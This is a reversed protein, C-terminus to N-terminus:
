GSFPYPGSRGRSGSTSATTRPTPSSFVARTSLAPDLDMIRGVEAASTVDGDLRQLVQVAVVSAVPVGMVEELHVEDVRDGSM